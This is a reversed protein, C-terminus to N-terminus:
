GAMSSKATLKTMSLPSLARVMRMGRRGKVSTAAVVRGPMSLEGSRSRKPM